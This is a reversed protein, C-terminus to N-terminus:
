CRNCRVLKAAIPPTLPLIRPTEGQHSLSVLASVDLAQPRVM